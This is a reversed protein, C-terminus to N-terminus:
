ALDPESHRQISKKVSSITSHRARILRQAKAIDPRPELLSTEYDQKKTGVTTLPDGTGALLSFQTRLDVIEQDLSELEVICEEVKEFAKFLQCVERTCTEIHSFRAPGLM